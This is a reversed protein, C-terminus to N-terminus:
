TPGWFQPDVKELETAVRHRGERDVTGCWVVKGKAIKEGSHSVLELVIGEVLAARMPLVCAQENIMLAIAQEERRSGDPAVWRVTVPAKRDLVLRSRPKRRREVSQQRTWPPPSSPAPAAQARSAALQPLPMGWIYKDPELCCIGIQNAQATGIQGIWVVRFRAKQWRRKVEIAQGPGTLYGVGDLRAGHQSIDITQASQVFPNGHQDVGRVKVSLAKPIRHEPRTIKWFSPAPRKFAVGVRAEGAAELEVYAVRCEQEERTTKNVVVIMEGLGVKAALAVLGGGANVLLTSTEEHFNGQDRVWGYVL